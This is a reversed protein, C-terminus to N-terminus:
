WSDESNESNEENPRQEKVIASIIKGMAFIGVCQDLTRETLPLPQGPELVLEAEPVPKNNEDRKVTGDESMEYKGPRGKLVQRKDPDNQVKWSVLLKMLMKAVSSGTRGDKSMRSMERELEPTYQSQDYSIELMGGGLPIFLPKEGAENLESLTLYGNQLASM